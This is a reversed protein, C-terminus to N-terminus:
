KEYVEEAWKFEGFVYTFTPDKLLPNSIMKTSYETDTFM